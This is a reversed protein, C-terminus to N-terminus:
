RSFRILSAILSSTLCSMVNKLGASQSEIVDSISEMNVQSIGQSLETRNAEVFGETARTLQNIPTVVTRRLISLSLLVAGVTLALLLASLGILFHHQTNVVENMIEGCVHRVIMKGQRSMRKQLTLIARLGASSLYVLEDM